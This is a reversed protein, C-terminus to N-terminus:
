PTLLFRRVAPIVIALQTPDSLFGNHDTNHLALTTGRKMERRFRRIQNGVFDKENLLQVYRRYAEDDQPRVPVGGEYVVVVNLAPAKVRAYAPSHEAAGDLIAALATERPPPLGAAASIKALSKYDNASDLYVLRSVREPHTVAFRTMEAGAVSHGALNVRQIRMLDLFGILDRVLTDTDYGSVPKDSQGQGRRTLGLVHFRDTLPPALAEFQREANGGLATLFLLPEGTGGWDVYHLKIGNVTAFAGQHVPARAPQSRAGPVCGLVLALAGVRSWAHTLSLMGAM